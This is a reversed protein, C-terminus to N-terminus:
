VTGSNANASETRDIQPPTERKDGSEPAVIKLVKPQSPKPRIFGDGNTDTAGRALNAGSKEDWGNRADVNPPNEEAVAAYSKPPLQKKKREEPRSPESVSVPGAM